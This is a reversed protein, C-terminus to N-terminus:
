SSEALVGDVFAVFDPELIPRAWPSHEWSYRVPPMRYFNEVLNRLERLDKATHSSAYQGWHLWFYYLNLYDARAANQVSIGFEEAYGEYYPAQDTGEIQSALLGDNTAVALMMERVGSARVLRNADVTAAKAYRVQTALYALTVVVAVAGVVEGLAGIADWNM